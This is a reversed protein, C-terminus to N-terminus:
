LQKKLAMLIKKEERSVKVQTINLIEGTKQQSLNHYYRLKIILQQQETLTNIAEKLAISTTLDDIPNNPDSIFSELTCDDSQNLTESLSRIPTVAEYANLLEAQSIGCLSSLESSTPEFGYKDIYKQKEKLIKMGLAKTSRSVKILGDDRLFRKIEGIILPVAYTSFACGYSLDFSRGAKLLGISGIQILDEMEYGRDKFRKAISRVLNMNNKIIDDIASEDGKSIRELLSINDTIM